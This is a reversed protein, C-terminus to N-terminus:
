LKKITIKTFKDKLVKNEKKLEKIRKEKQILEHRYRGLIMEIKSYMEEYDNVKEDKERLDTDTIAIPLKFM